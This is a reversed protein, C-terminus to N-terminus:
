PSVSKRSEALEVPYDEQYFIIFVELLRSNSIPALVNQKAPHRAPATQRPISRTDKTVTAIVPM